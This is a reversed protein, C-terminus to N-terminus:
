MHYRMYTLAETETQRVGEKGQQTWLDIRWEQGAFLNMLAMTRSQM